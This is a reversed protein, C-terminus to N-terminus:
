NLSNRPKKSTFHDPTYQIVFFKCRFSSLYYIYFIIATTVIYIAMKTNGDTWLNIVINLPRLLLNHLFTFIVYKETIFNSTTL